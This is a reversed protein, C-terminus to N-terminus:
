YGAKALAEVAERFASGRGMKTSRFDPVLECALHVAVSYGYALRKGGAPKITGGLGRNHMTRRTERETYTPWTPERGTQEKYDAALEDHTYISWPDLEGLFESVKKTATTM